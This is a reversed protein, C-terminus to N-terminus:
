FRVVLSFWISYFLFIWTSPPSLRSDFGNGCGTSNQPPLRMGLSRRRVDTCDEGFDLFYKTGLGQIECFYFFIFFFIINILIFWSLRQPKWSSESQCAVVNLSWSVARNSFFNVVALSPAVRLCFHIVGLKHTTISNTM